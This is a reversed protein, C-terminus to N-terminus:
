NYNKNQDYQQCEKCVGHENLAALNVCKVCLKKTKM